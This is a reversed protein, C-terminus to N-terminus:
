SSDSLAPPAAPTGLVADGSMPRMLIAFLRTFKNRLRKALPQALTDLDRLIAILTAIRQAIDGHRLIRRLRSGVVSRLLHRRHLDRGRRFFVLKRWRLRAIEGARVLALHIVMRTLYEFPIDGRQHRHRASTPKGALVAAIWTLMALAWLVLRQRRHRTILPKRIQM